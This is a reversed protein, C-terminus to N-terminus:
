YPSSRRETEPPSHAVARELRSTAAGSRAPRGPRNRFYFRIPTPPGRVLMLVTGANDRGASMLGLEDGWGGCSSPGIESPALRVSESVPHPNPLPSRGAVM